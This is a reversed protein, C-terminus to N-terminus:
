LDVVEMTVRRVYYGKYDGKGMDLITEADTASNFFTADSLQEAPRAVLGTLLTAHIKLPKDNDDYIVYYTM